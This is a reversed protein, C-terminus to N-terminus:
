RWGSILHAALRPSVTEPPYARRGVRVLMQLHTLGLASELAARRSTVEVAQSMPHLAVAAPVAELWIRMLDAGTNRWDHATNDDTAFVLWGSGEALQAATQQLTRTRFAPALVDDASYSAEVWRRALWTLEMTQPTIGTPNAVVDGPRWRIWRALEHWVGDQKCQEETALLTARDIAAAEPTGAAIFRATETKGCLQSLWPQMDALPALAKRLTRRRRLAGLSSTDRPGPLLHLAIPADPSTTSTVELRLGRAAAAVELAVIFAGLSQSRERGDPDVVMLSRGPAVRLTWRNREHLEVHWPQTNHSSPARAADALMSLAEPLWEPERRRDNAALAISPLSCFCLLRAGALLLDRRKM